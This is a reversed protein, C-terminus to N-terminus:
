RDDIRCPIFVQDEAVDGVMSGRNDMVVTAHGDFFLRFAFNGVVLMRIELAIGAEGVILHHEKRNSV